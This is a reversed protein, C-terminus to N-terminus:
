GHNLSYNIAKDLKSTLVFIYFLSAFLFSVFHLQVSFQLVTFKIVKLTQKLMFISM